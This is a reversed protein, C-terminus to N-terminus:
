DENAGALFQRYWLASDKLIRRQTSYDVYVLGLRPKYGQLWEFNDMLSWVFYGALPVGERVAQEAAAIHRRLYNIRALDHVTMDPNLVDEAGFGNETIYLKGIAYDAPLRKLLRYLGEPYIGLDTANTADGTAVTRTKLHMDEFSEVASQLNRTYYNFGLFDMPQGIIEM